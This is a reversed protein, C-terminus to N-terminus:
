IYVLTPKMVIEFSTRLLFVRASYPLKKYSGIELSEAAAKVDFYSLGGLGLETKFPNKM